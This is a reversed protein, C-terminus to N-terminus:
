WYVKVSIGCVFKIEKWQWWNCRIGVQPCEYEMMDINVNKEGVIRSIRYVKDKVEEATDLPFIITKIM